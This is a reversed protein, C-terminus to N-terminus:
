GPALRSGTRFHADVLGSCQIGAKAPIASEPAHIVFRHAAIVIERRM